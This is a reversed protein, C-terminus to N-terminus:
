CINYLISRINTDMTNLDVECHSAVRFIYQSPSWKFVSVWEHKHGHRTRKINLKGGLSVRGEGAREQFYEQQKESRQEEISLSIMKPFFRWQSSWHFRPALTSSFSLPGTSFTKGKIEVVKLNKLKIIIQNELQFINLM